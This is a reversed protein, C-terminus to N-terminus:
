GDSLEFGWGWIANLHLHPAVREIKRRIRYIFQDLLNGTAEENLCMLLCERSVKGRRMITSVLDSECGTLRVRKGNCSLMRCDLNLGLRDQPTEKDYPAGCHLCYDASM